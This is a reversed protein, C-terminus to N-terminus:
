LCLTPPEFGEAGVFRFSTLVVRMPPKQKQCSEEFKNTLPHQWFCFSGKPKQRLSTKCLQCSLFPDCATLRLLGEAGVVGLVFLYRDFVPTEKRKPPPLACSHHAEWFFRALAFCMEKNPNYPNGRLAPILAPLGEAGVFFRVFADM